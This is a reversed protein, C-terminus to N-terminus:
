KWGYKEKLNNFIKLDAEEKSLEKKFQEPLSSVFEKQKEVFKQIKKSNCLVIINETYIIDEDKTKILDGFDFHYENYIESNVMKNKFCFSKFLSGSYLNLYKPNEKIISKIEMLETYMENDENANLFYIEDEDSYNKLLNMLKKKKM